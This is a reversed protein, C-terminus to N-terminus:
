FILWCSNVWVEGGVAMCVLFAIETFEAGSCCCCVKDFSGGGVGLGGKLLWGVQCWSGPGDQQCSAM